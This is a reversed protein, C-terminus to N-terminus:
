VYSERGVWKKFGPLSNLKDFNGGGLNVSAMCYKGFPAKTIKMMTESSKKQLKVIALRLILAIGMPIASM